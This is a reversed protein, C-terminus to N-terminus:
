SRRADITRASRPLRGTPSTDTPSARHRARRRAELPAELGIARAWIDTLAATAADDDFPQGLLHRVESFNEVMGCLLAAFLDPDVTSDAQGTEQLHRLGRAAREVFALRCQQRHHRLEQNFTSVQIVVAYLRAHRAFTELYLRNAAAIKAKPDPGALEGVHSERYLDDILEDVVERFVEEKSSFYTYFTGIAVGAEAAIDAIRADLFGDRTFVAAAAHVLAARTRRGRRTAPVAAVTAESASADSAVEADLNGALHRAPRAM